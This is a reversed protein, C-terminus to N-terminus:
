GSQCDNQEPSVRSGSWDPFRNLTGVLLAACLISPITVWLFPTYSAYSDFIAGATVPGLAVGITMFVTLCSFLAGYRKLGFYRTALYYAVDLEAGLSLGLILAALTMELTGSGSLLLLVSPMPLLFAVVAVVRADLRDLFFGTAFRGILSALGIMGAINAASVIDLGRDKLIPMFHVILGIAVFAFLGAAFGLRYFTSSRLGEGLLLGPRNESDVRQAARVARGNGDYAGRFFLIIPPLVVIAWILGIAAFAERWGFTTLLWATLPPIITASVGAGSVVVALALGRSADFRSAVASTWIVPTIGAGGMAVLAWLVYWNLLSGTATGLAAIAACFLTAGIIGILRPGFRDVLIGGLIGLGIGGLNSVTIGASIEARSWGFERNLPEMFAGISYVALVTLSNGLAAALPLTWYSRWEGRGSSLM